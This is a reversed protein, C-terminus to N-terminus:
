RGYRATLQAKALIHSHMASEVQSRPAGADVEVSTDLAYLTFIYRHPKGAPPCPGGYGTKGFDTKGQRSGNALQSQTPMGEPLRTINAPLNYLVWHTFDGGPADPDVVTLAFAGTGSPAGSWEVAPSKNEGDCTFEKPFKGDQLNASSLTFIAGSAAVLAQEHHRCGALFPAALLLLLLLLIRWLLGTSFHIHIHRFPLIPEYIHM